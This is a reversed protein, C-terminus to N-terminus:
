SCKSSSIWEFQWGTDDINVAFPQCLCFGVVAALEGDVYILPIRKRLWPPVAWEQFLTKLERSRAQGAPQCREGGQRFRVEVRATDALRLGEGPTKRARLEGDDLMLPADFHRWSYTKVPDSAPLPTMAYVKDRYCRIEVGPWVVSPSRDEASIELQAIIQGLRRHDPARLGAYSLWVRILNARRAQSLSNLAQRSLTNDNNRVTALDIDALEQLLAVSEACHAASRVLADSVGPWTKKLVPLVKSRMYNRQFRMESNSPDTVWILGQEQAYSQLQQKSFGLLPRLHRGKAFPKIAPMSALGKPGAGRLAQLLFTEAQDDKHQATLLVDGTEIYNALLAYRTERAKEELSDGRGLNLEAKISIFPIKYDDCIERCHDSWQQSKAQLGHDIYVASFEAPRLANGLQVIAHLLTSSDLGGSFAIWYRRVDPYRQLVQLLSQPSFDTM